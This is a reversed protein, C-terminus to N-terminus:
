GFPHDPIVELYCTGVFFLIGTLPDMFNSFTGFLTLAETVEPLPNESSFTIAATPEAFSDDRKLHTIQRVRAELEEGSIEEPSTRTPDQLGSYEWMGHVRAQLPQIRRKLFTCILQMGTLEKGPAFRLDAVRSLLDNAEAEEAPSLDHRWTRKSKM